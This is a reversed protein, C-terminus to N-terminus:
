KIFVTKVNMFEFLADDSLERGYGSNKIGGFPLRPDSKVLENVFVAGENLLPIMRKIRAEDNTFISVGLGFESDNSLKIAENETKFTTVALLPGFTEEKFVEMNPKVNTLITPEFFAKEQKGGILIKAGKEISNDMQMKLELAFKEEALVGIETEKDLPNGCKKTKIITVLKELLKDSVSEQVLLRKGAICSQGTNQFRATYITEAAQDLDADDFVILANNGGLELVTKKIYKGCHAAVASGAGFSGTLTAAKVIKNAIIKEIKSSSALLTQSVGVPFGAKLIIEEIALASGCVNSAHKLVGVNGAMINPAFFRFYQWFPYNWPMIALIVGLPEYKVFSKSAETKIIKDQLKEETHQAYHRCVWACKEVEAISQTIPKGMELTILNGLNEKDKELLDALTNMLKAREAFSTKKWKQFTIEAIDIKQNIAESSLEQYEKILVLNYPNTSQM